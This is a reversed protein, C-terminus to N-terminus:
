ARRLPDRYNTHTECHGGAPFLAPNYGSLEGLLIHHCDCKSSRQAHTIREEGDKEDAALALTSPVFLTGATVAAGLFQRRSPKSRSEDM